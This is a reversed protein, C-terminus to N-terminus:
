QFPADRFLAANYDLSATMSVHGMHEVGGVLILGGSDARICDAAMQVASFSSACLRNITLSPVTEPFGSLLLVLRGLNKGQELHQGVFGLYFDDVSGPDLSIRDVLHQLVQAVLEDARINRFDGKDPHSRGIPSRCGNVLFVEKM